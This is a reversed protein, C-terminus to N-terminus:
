IDAIFLSVKDRIREVFKGIIFVGLAESIVWNSLIIGLTLENGSFSVLLERVLLVQSVIGSFGVALLTFLWFYAPM